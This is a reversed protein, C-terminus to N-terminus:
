VVGFHDNDNTDVFLADRELIDALDHTLQIEEERYTDHVIYMADPNFLDLNDLIGQRHLGDIFILAQTKKDPFFGVLAKRDYWNENSGKNDAFKYNVGKVLNLYDECHDVSWVKYFLSFAKTSCFGSGLEIVNSGEPIKDLIYQFTELEIGSGGWEIEELRKDM